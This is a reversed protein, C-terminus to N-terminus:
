TGKGDLRTDILDGFRLKLLWYADKFDVGPRWAKFPPVRESELRFRETSLWTRYHETALQYTVEARGERNWVVVQHDSTHETTYMGAGLLVELLARLHAEEFSVQFALLREPDAVIEPLSDILVQRIDNGARFARVMKRLVAARAADDTRRAAVGELHVELMDSESLDPPSITLTGTDPDYDAAAPVTEGNIIATIAEPETVARFVLAYTRAVSPGIRLIAKKKSWDLTFETLTYDGSRYATSVGDDEYLDFRNSAGPFVQIELVSPTRWDDPECLPIIAGPKAFVPIDDM